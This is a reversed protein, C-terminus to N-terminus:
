VRVLDSVCRGWADLATRKEPGFQHRQYTGVIGARSGSVHNLIAEIVELRVGLRQLGTAVTRRLDHLTWHDMPRGLKETAVRAIRAHAKSIGSAPNISNGDAPFLLGGANRTSLLHLILFVAESLPIGCAVGNKARQSPITWLREVLDFERWPAEFVESRRAGTLILLQVATGFPYGDQTAAHWVAALEDDALIRDRAVRIVPKRVGHCPNAAVLDKAVCWSLFSSLQAFVAKGQNPTPKNPDAYVVKDVLQIVDRRTLGSVPRAGLVPLIYRSFIRRIEAASRLLSIHQTDFQKFVALVSDVLQAKTAPSTRTAIPKGADADVLIDRAQRRADALGFRPGHRGLTLNVIKEGQRKRLIYTKVGSAGIRLRLGQVVRDAYEAQGSTPPKLASIRADTLGVLQAL